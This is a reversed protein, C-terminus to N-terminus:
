TIFLSSLWRLGPFPDCWMFIYRWQFPMSERDGVRGRSQRAERKRKREEKGMEKKRERQREGRGWGGGRLEREREREAKFGLYYYAGALSANWARLYLPFEWWARQSVCQPDREGFQVARWSCQLEAWTSFIRRACRRLPEVLCASKHRQAAHKSLDLNKVAKRM